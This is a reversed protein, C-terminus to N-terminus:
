KGCNKVYQDVDAAMKPWFFRSRLMDTTREVGLHGLDDHMSKLVVPKFEAPLVLQHTKEGVHSTSVRHLLGNKMVLKGMERKM